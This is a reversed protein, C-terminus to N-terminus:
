GGGVLRVLGKSALTQAARDGSRIAGEITAPLGTATWDGALVLNAWPTESPPRRTEETPLAAFTARREKVIQWAPLAAPLGTLGSVERWLDRALQDREGDILRDAASITISLRDAFAFLWEVTGGLVGMIRPWGSPAAIRFHANLIARFSEPAALDPLLSKAVPPPVALIVSDTPALPVVEEGFDLAAARGQAFAIRRLRHGFHLKVKREGMWKVAPDIFAASLGQAAVLPRCAAGGRLLTEALVAAALRASAAEPETNLAALLVPRLLRRYLPGQCNMADAIRASPGATFLRWPAIYDLARTGPVRRSPSLVWWALWGRNIEIRWREGSALDAFDFRAERPGVLAAAAGIRQLYDLAARNGSLLLHNGNDIECDLAPEYYSRCRGGAHDTAEHVIIQAGSEALRVAAALGALGAGIIHATPPAM